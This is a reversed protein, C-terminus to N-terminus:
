LTSKDYNQNLKEKIESINEAMYSIVMLLFFVTTGILLTKLFLLFDSTNSLLIGSNIISFALIICSVIRLGNIYTKEKNYEIYESSNNKEQIELDYCEACLYKGHYPSGGDFFSTKKNCHSCNKSM